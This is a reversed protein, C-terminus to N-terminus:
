VQNPNPQVAATNMKLRHYAFTGRVGHVFALLLIIGVIFGATATAGRYYLAYAREFIFLLLGVVAWARSLKFIRWAAIAFLAADVLSSPSFGPLIRIDFIALVAFLATIAAVFVAAGAGQHAAEKAGELDDVSPWWRNIPKAM